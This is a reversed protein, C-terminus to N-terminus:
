HAFLYQQWGRLLSEVDTAVGEVFQVAGVVDEDVSIDAINALRHVLDSHM